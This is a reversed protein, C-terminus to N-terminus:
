SLRGCEGVHSVLCPAVLSSTANDQADPKPKNATGLYIGYLGAAVIAALSLWVALMPTEPADTNSSGADSPSSEVPELHKAKDAETM